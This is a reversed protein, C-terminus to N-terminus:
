CLFRAVDVGTEVQKPTLDLYELAMKVVTLANYKSRQKTQRKRLRSEALQMRRKEIMKRYFQLPVRILSINKIGKRNRGVLRVVFPGLEALHRYWTSRDVGRVKSWWRVTKGTGRNGQGIITLATVIAGDSIGADKLQTVDRASMRLINDLNQM